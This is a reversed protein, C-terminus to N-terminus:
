FGHKHAMKIVTEQIVKMRREHAIALHLRNCLPLQVTLPRRRLMRTRGM